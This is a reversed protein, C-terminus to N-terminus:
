PGPPSPTYASESEIFDPPEPTLPPLHRKARDERMPNDLRPNPSTNEAWTVGTALRAGLPVTVLDGPALEVGAPVRYSYAQDLAVPVLVDVVRQAMVRPRSSRKIFLSPLPAIFEAMDLAVVAGSGVKAAPSTARSSAHQSACREASRRTDAFVTSAYARSTRWNRTKRQRCKPLRAVSGASDRRFGSSTRAKMAARRASPTLLRESMRMSAPTREKARKRSRLSLPLIPASAATRVGFIAFVSGLGSATAAALRMVSVSNRAPSSRAGHIM